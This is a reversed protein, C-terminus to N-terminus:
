GARAMFERRTKTLWHDLCEKAWRMPQETVPRLLKNEPKERMTDFTSTSVGLYEAAQSRTLRIDNHAPAFRLQRVVEAAIATVDENTLTM